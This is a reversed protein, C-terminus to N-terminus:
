TPERQLRDLEEVLARVREEAAAAREEAARLAEELEDAWWDCSIVSSRRLDRAMATSGPVIGRQGRIQPLDRAM